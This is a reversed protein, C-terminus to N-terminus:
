ATRPRRLRAGAGASSLAVFLFSTTAPEPIVDQVAPASVAPQVGNPAEDTPDSLTGVTVGYNLRGDDRGILTLPVTIRLFDPGYVIPATGQTVFFQSVVDVRGAHLSESFLDLYFEVGLAPDPAPGVLEQFSSVGTAANQDTDLDIIGGVGNSLGSSPAAISGAFTLLFTINGGGFTAQASTLDIALVGPPAFTDGVPDFFTQARAPGAAAVGALWVAAGLVAATRGSHGRGCGRKGFGPMTKLGNVEEKRNKM